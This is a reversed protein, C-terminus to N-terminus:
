PRVIVDDGQTPSPGATTSFGNVSCAAPSKEVRFSIQTGPGVTIIRKILYGSDPIAQPAPVGCAPAMFIDLQHRNFGGNGGHNDARDIIMSRSSTHRDNPIPFGPMFGSNNSPFPPLGAFSGTHNFSLSVQESDLITAMDADVGTSSSITIAIEMGARAPEDIPAHFPGNRVNIPLPCPPPPPPSPPKVPPPKFIWRYLLYLLLLLLLVVVVLLVIGVWLPLVYAVGAILIIILGGIIQIPPGAFAPAPGLFSPALKFDGVVEAISATISGGSSIFNRILRSIFDRMRSLTRQAFEIIQDVPGQALSRVYQVIRGLAGTWAQILSQIFTVVAQALQAFGQIVQMAKSVIMEVAQAIRAAIEQMIQGATTALRQFILAIISATQEEFSQIIMQNNQTANLGIERIAAISNDMSATKGGRAPGAEGGSAAPNVASALAGLHRAKNARIQALAQQEANSIAQIMLTELRNLLPTIAGSLVSELTSVILNLLQNMAQFVLQMIRQIASSALALAQDILQRFLRLFSGLLNMGANFASRVFGLVQGVAGSVVGAARRLLNVAADRAQAVGPLDPLPIVNIVDVIQNAIGGVREQVSATIGEIVGNIEERLENSRAEAAQLASMISMQIVALTRASATVIESQKTGVFTRVGAISKTLFGSLGRHVGSFHEGIQQRRTVANRAVQAESQLCDNNILRAQAVAHPKLPSDPAATIQGMGPSEANDPKEAESVARPTGSAPSAIAAPAKPEDGNGSAQNNTIDPTAPSVAEQVAPEFFERSKKTGTSAPSNPALLAQQTEVAHATGSRSDQGPNGHEMRPSQSAMGISRMASAGTSSDNVTAPASLDLSNESTDSTHSSHPFSPPHPVTPPEEKKRRLPSAGTQQVVHTLEHATLDLNAPSNGAGFFIDLGHTFAHAGIDRNMQIANSGTHVRVQGFGMGFRPEMYARVSDPLPSGQGKSQILRSEVEEGADFSDALSGAPEPQITEPEEEETASQHRIPSCSETLFKAQIASKGDELEEDSRTQRRVVPPGPTALRTQLIQGRDEEILPVDRQIPPKALISGTKEKGAAKQRQLPLVSNNFFKGQLLEDKDEEKDKEEKIEEEGGMQRQVLPTISVVPPLPKNQLTQTQSAEGAVRLAQQLSAVAVADPMSPVQRAVRDAEHEYQDDVAGMTLKPQLGIIKGDPTLRRAKILQSVSDNGLIRQLQMFSAHVGNHSRIRMQQLQSAGTAKNVKIAAPETFHQAAM